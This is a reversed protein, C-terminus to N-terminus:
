SSEAILVLKQGTWSTQSQVCSAFLRAGRTHSFIAVDGGLEVLIDVLERMARQKSEADLGLIDLVLPTDLYFTVNQYTRPAEALNPCLLANALMHGQILVLLDGFRDTDTDSIHRVYSSVLVIDQEHDGELPPITTRQLYARLCTVDFKDLFACIAQVGDDLDTLPSVTNQSWDYLDSVVKEIQSKAAERKSTLGPDSITGSIRYVGHDRRVPHNRAIRKLVLQITPDPIILGFKDLVHSRMIETTIPEPREDALVQLALPQLYNLYDGGHDITVRLIALSTLTNAHM